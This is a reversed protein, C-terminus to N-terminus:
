YAEVLTITTYGGGSNGTTNQDYSDYSAQEDSFSFGTNIFNGGGGGGSADNNSGASFDAEGGSYGGGGAGGWSGMGGGGFGGNVGYSSSGEGGLFGANYRKAPNAVSGGGNQAESGDGVIGAGGGGSWQGDDGSVTYPTGGFGNQGYGLQIPSNESQQHGRSINGRGSGGIAESGAYANTGNRYTSSTSNHAGGGGGGAALMCRSKINESSSGNGFTSTRVDNTLGSGYFVFSGGGGGGSGEGSEDYGTAGCIFRLSSGAPLIYKARVRGGNGGSGAYSSVNRGGRAGNVDLQWVGSVPVLWDMYGQTVINFRALSPGWSSYSYASNSQLISKAETLTTGSFTQLKKNFNEFTISQGVAYSWIPDPFSAAGGRGIFFNTPLSM